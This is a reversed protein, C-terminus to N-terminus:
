AESSFTRKWTALLDGLAADVAVEGELGYVCLRPAKTVMGIEAYVKGMMLAEFDEKAEQSVEVLFRSNSESFLVFDNRDVNGTPVKQLHLEM